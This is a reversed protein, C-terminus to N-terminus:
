TRFLVRERSFLIVALMVSLAAMVILTVFTLGLYDWAAQGKLVQSMAVSVNALPIVAVPLSAKFGPLMPLMTPIVAFLMMPSLYTMAEKYSKAFLSLAISLSSFMAALPVMLALLIVMASFPVALSISPLGSRGGVGIEGGFMMQTAGMSLLALIASTMSATFVTAIKGVIIELRGAPCVLLTELTGREREGATLDIAVYSAGVLCLFILVYPVIMAAIHMKLKLDSAIRMSDIRFPEVKSADVGKAELIRTRYRQLVGELKRMAMESAIETQEYHIQVTAPTGEEISKEFSESFVVAADLEQEQIAKEWDPFKPFLAFYKKDLEFAPNQPAGIVVVRSQNKSAKEIQWTFIKTMGLMLLPIALIPFVVMSLITRRDRLVDLLEKRFIIAINGLRM